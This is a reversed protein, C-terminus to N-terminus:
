SNEQEELELLKDIDIDRADKKSSHKILWWLGAIVAAIGIVALVGSIIYLAVKIRTVAMDM